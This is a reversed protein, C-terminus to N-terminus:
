RQARDSAKQVIISWSSLEQGDVSVTATLVGPEPIVLGQVALIIRTRSKEEFDGKGVAQGILTTNLSLTITADIVNPDQEDRELYFLTAFRPLVFPFEISTLEELMNFISLNNTEADRVISESCVALKSKIM